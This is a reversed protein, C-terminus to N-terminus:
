FYYKSYDIFINSVQAVEVRLLAVIAEVAVEVEVVHNTHVVRHQHDVKQHHAVEHAVVLGLVALAEHGVQVRNIQITQNTQRLM